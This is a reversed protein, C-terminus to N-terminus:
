RGVKGFTVNVVEQPFVWEMKFNTIPNSPTIGITQSVKSTPWRFMRRLTSIFSLQINGVAFLSAVLELPRRTCHPRLGPGYQATLGDVIAGDNVWTGSVPLNRERFVITLLPNLM